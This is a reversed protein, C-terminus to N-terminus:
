SGQGARRTAASDGGSHNLRRWIPYRARPREGQHRTELGSRGREPDLSETAAADVVAPANLGARAAEHQEGKLLNVAIYEYPIGKLSLANRVRWSAGSRWYNYLKM